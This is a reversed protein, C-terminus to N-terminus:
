MEKNYPRYLIQKLSTYFTPRLVMYFHQRPDKKSNAQRKDLAVFCLCPDHLCGFLTEQKSTKLNM